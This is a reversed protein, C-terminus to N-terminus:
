QSLSNDFEIGALRIAELSNMYTMDLPKGHPIRIRGCWLCKFGQEWSYNWEYDKGWVKRYPTAPKGCCIPKAM